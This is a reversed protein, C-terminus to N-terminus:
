AKDFCKGETERLFVRCVIIRSLHSLSFILIWIKWMYMQSTVVHPNKRVSLQSGFIFYFYQRNFLIAWQQRHCSCCWVSSVFFFNIFCFNGKNENRTTHTYISFIRLIISLCLSPFESKLIRLTLSIWPKKKKRQSNANMDRVLRAYIIALHIHIHASTVKARSHCHCIFIHISLERSSPSFKHCKSLIKTGFSFLVFTLPLFLKWKRIHTHTHVQFSPFLSIIWQSFETIERRYVCLKNYNLWM